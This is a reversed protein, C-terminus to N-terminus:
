RKRMVLVRIGFVRFLAAASWKLRLTGPMERYAISAYGFQAYFNELRSECMLYLPREARAELAEILQAAVGQRRYARDVVLSGLEQCDRYPKIQGVGITEGAHEAILFNPWKLSTPDLRARRIMAKIQPADDERAPRIEVPLM